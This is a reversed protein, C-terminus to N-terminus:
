PQDHDRDTGKRDKIRAFLVHDRREGCIQLYSRAFGEREFGARRLVAQSADNEPLTAAEIRALRWEKFAWKCAATVGEAMFGFGTYDVGLWYGIRATSIPPYQVNTFSVAGLLAQSDKHWLHFIHGRGSLRLDRWILMRARWDERSHPHAPWAPEWPRLHDQSARRLAAWARFDRNQVSKLVLRDSEIWVPAAPLGWRM